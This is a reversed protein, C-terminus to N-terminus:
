GADRPYIGTSRSFKDEHRSCPIKRRRLPGKLQNRLGSAPRSPIADLSMNHYLSVLRLMIRDRERHFLIIDRKILLLHCIPPKEPIRWNLFKQCHLELRHIFIRKRLHRFIDRFMKSSLRRIYANDPRHLRTHITHLIHVSFYYVHLMVRM